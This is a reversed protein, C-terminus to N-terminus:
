QKNKLVAEIKRAFYANKQPNLLSLKKYMEIAKDYKGQKIYIDALSESILDEENSISNMAMEFVNEPIEENEEQMAAALKEKQWMSRLAKQGEAEQKAKQSQSKFYALWESFSMVVMLSTDDLSTPKLQDVEPPMNNSVEIGEHKFYDETYLPQILPEEIHVPAPVDKSSDSAQQLFEYLLVWNGKYSHLDYMIAPAFPSRKHQLAADLYRAPVFYPYETLISNIIDKDADQLQQPNSLMQTIYSISSSTVM